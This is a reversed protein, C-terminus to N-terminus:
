RKRKKVVFGKKNIIFQSKPMKMGLIKRVNMDSVIITKSLIQTIKEGKTLKNWENIKRKIKKSTVM